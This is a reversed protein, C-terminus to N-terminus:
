KQATEVKRTHIFVCSHILEWVLKYSTSSKVYLNFARINENFVCTVYLSCPLLHFHVSALNRPINNIIWYSRWFNFDFHSVQWINTAFLVVNARKFWKYFQWSNNLLHEWVSHYSWLPWIFVQLTMLYIISTSVPISSWTQFTLAM